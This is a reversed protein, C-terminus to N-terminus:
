ALLYPRSADTLDTFVSNSDARVERGFRIRLDYFFKNVERMTEVRLAWYSHLAAAGYAVAPIVRSLRNVVRHGSGRSVNDQSSATLSPSSWAPWEKGFANLIRAHGSRFKRM